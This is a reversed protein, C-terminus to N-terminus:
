NRISNEAAEPAPADVTGPQNRAQYYMQTIGPRVYTTTVSVTRIMGARDMMIGNYPDRIGEDFHFNRALDVMNGPLAKSSTPNYAKIWYTSYWDRFWREREARVESTYLPASSWVRAEDGAFENRHISEGDWRYEKIIRNEVAILTFPEIGEMSHCNLYRAATESKLAEMLILGRSLRYPPNRKHPEFAGNLLCLTNGNSKLGIWTGGAEMDKPLVVGGERLYHPFEAAKRLPTEDRSQTLIYGDEVPIYTVTCM